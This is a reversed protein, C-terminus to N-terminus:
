ARFVSLLRQRGRAVPSGLCAGQSEIGLIKRRLRLKRAYVLEMRLYDLWLGEDTECLRLGQQM